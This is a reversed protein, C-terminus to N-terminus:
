GATYSSDINNSYAGGAVVVCQAYVPIHETYQCGLIVILAFRLFNLVYTVFQGRFQLYVSCVTRTPAGEILTSMIVKKFPISLSYPYSPVTLLSSTQEPTTVPTPKVGLRGCDGFIM